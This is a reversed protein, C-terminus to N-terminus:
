AVKVDNESIQIVTCQRSSVASEEEEFLAYQEIEDMFTGKINNLVWINIFLSYIFKIKHDYLIMKQTKSTKTQLTKKETNGANMMNPARVAYVSNLM